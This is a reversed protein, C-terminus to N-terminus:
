HRLALLRAVTEKCLTGETGKEFAHPYYHRQFAKVVDQYAAMPNYGLSDFAKKTEFDNRALAVADEYDQPTPNPWVGVGGEALYAWDFLEGPDEKREPAVDSHGLVHVIDHRKQIASCLSLVEKIQAKPFPRYGFEHGPNVIEIGISASNIDEDGNWYSLGAHWARKDESILNYRKGDEDILYHVSVKSEPNTLREKAERMTKMGTYHLVIIYPTKGKPRKQYNLAKSKRFFM